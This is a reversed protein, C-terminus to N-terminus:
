ASAQLEETVQAPPLVLKKMLTSRMEPIQAQSDPHRKLMETRATPQMDEISSKGNAKAIQEALAGTYAGRRAFGGSISSLLLLTNPRELTIYKAENPKGANADIQQSSAGPPLQGNFNQCAQIVVVQLLSLYQPELEALICLNAGSDSKTYSGQM